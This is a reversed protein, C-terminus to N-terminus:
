AIAALVASVSTKRSWARRYGCGSLLFHQTIRDPHFDAVGSREAGHGVGKVRDLLVQLRLQEHLEQFLGVGPGDQDEGAGFVPGLADALPQSFAPYLAAESWPFKDCFM